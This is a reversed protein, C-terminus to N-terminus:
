LFFLMMNTDFINPFIGQGQDLIHNKTDWFQFITSEHNTFQNISLMMREQFPNEPHIKLLQNNDGRLQTLPSKSFNGM